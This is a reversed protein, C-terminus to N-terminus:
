TPKPPPSRPAPPKWNCACTRPISSRWRNIPRSASGEEVLRRSVKGGIRFALDPEYRARVEGPYSEMAQASPEPQVVMAPRVSVQPAEEQGCASLLFALSVPLALSLVYRFM